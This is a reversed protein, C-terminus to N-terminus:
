QAGRPDPQMFSTLKVMLLFHFQLRLIWDQGLPSSWSHVHQQFHAANRHDYPYKESVDKDWQAACFRSHSWDSINISRLMQPITIAQSLGSFCFYSRFVSKIFTLHHLGVQSHNQQNILRRCGFFAITVSWLAQRSTSLVTGQRLPIVSHVELTMLAAM